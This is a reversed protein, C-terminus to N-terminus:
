AVQRAGFLATGVRIYTAGFRIATEFDSSMGMSLHPLQHRAALRQMLAFYPAPNKGEPPIAMLGIVNLGLEKQCLELFAPLENVSVGAKQPEEGINVQILCLVEKHQEQCAAQILRAIKERDVSHIVDFLAVAQAVKNSQLNGICHLTIDPYEAKLAPWRRQAEQLQNEGFYRLGLELAARLLEDPQRKSVAILQTHGAPAAAAERAKDIQFQIANYNKLLSNM